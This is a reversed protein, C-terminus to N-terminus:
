SLKSVTDMPASSSMSRRRPSMMSATDRTSVPLPTMMRVSMNPPVGDFRAMETIREPLTPLLRGLRLRKMAARLEPAITRTTM